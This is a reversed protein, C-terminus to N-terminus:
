GKKKNIYESYPNIVEQKEGTGSSASQDWKSKKSSSTTSGKTATVVQVVPRQKGDAVLLNNTSSTFDVKQRNIDKKDIFRRQEDALANYYDSEKYIKPDWIQQPYNTGFENIKCFEVLKEYIDPNRFEKSKRLKKKIQIKVKV